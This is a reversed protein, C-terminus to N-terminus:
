DDLTIIHFMIQYSDDRETIRMVDIYVELQEKLLRELVDSVGFVEVPDELEYQHGMPEDDWDGLNRETIGDPIDQEFEWEWGGMGDDYIEGSTCDRVLEEIEEYSYIDRDLAMESLVWKNKRWNVNKIVVENDKECIPQLVIEDKYPAFVYKRFVGREIAEYLKDLLESDEKHLEMEFRYVM